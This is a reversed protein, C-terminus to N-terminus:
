LKAKKEQMPLTRKRNVKKMKVQFKNNQNNM